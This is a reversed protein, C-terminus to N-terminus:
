LKKWLQLHINTCEIHCQEILKQNINLECKHFIEEFIKIERYTIVPITGNKIGEDIQKEIENLRQESIEKKNQKNNGKKQNKVTDKTYTEVYREKM